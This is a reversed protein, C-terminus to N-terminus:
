TSGGFMDPATLPMAAVKALRLENYLDYNKILARHLAMYDNPEVGLSQMVALISERRFDDWADCTLRPNLTEAELFFYGEGIQINKYGALGSALKKLEKICAIGTRTYMGDVAYMPLDNHKPSSVPTEKRATLNKSQRQMELWGIPLLMTLPFHPTGVTATCISLIENPLPMKMVVKIAEQADVGARQLNKAEFRRSGFLAWMALTQKPAEKAPDHLTIALEEFSANAAWERDNAVGEALDCYLYLETLYRTKAARAMRKALQVGLAADGVTKRWAPYKTAVTVDLVTEIDGMAVDEAAIVALRRWLSRKDQQWLSLALRGALDVDGRRIAKQMGSMTIWKDFHMPEIATLVNRQLTDALRDLRQQFDQEAM